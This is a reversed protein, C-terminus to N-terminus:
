HESCFLIQELLKLAHQYLLGFCAAGAVLACTPQGIVAALIRRGIWCKSLAM